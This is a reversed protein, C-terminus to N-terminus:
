GSRAPRSYVGIVLGGRDIASAFDTLVLAGFEHNVIFVSANRLRVTM